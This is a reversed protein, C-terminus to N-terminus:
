TSLIIVTQIFGIDNQTQVYEIFKNIDIPMKDKLQTLTWYPLKALRNIAANQRFKECDM